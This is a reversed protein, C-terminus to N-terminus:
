WGGNLQRTLEKIDYSNQRVTDATKYASDRSADVFASAEALETAMRTLEKTFDEKTRTMEQDWYSLDKRIMEIDMAAKEISQITSNFTTIGYYLSSLVSAVVPIYIFYKKIDDIQM